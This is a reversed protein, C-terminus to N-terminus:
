KWGALGDGVEQKVWVAVRASLDRCLGSDRGVDASLCRPSIVMSDVRVQQSPQQILDASMTGGQRKRRPVAKPYYTLEEVKDM